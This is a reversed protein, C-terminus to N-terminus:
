CCAKFGRNSEINDKIVQSVNPHDALLFTECLARAQCTLLDPEIEIARDFLGIAEEFKENYICQFGNNLLKDRDLNSTEYRTVTESM